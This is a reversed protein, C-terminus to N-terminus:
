HMNHESVDTKLGRLMARGEHAFEAALCTHSDIAVLVPEGRYGNEDMVASLSAFLDEEAEIDIREVHGRTAKCIALSGESLVIAWNTRRRM